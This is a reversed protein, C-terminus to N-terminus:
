IVKYVGILVCQEEPSGVALTGVFIAKNLWDYKGIPAEFSPVTRVYVSNKDVSVLGKNVVSILVNDDTKLTYRAEVLTVGDPRVLQWDAGGPVVIGKIDPGNFNGGTIPILQVKGRSSPGIRLMSDIYVKAEFVFETQIKNPPSANKM